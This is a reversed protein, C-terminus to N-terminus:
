KRTELKIKKQNKITRIEIPINNWIAPGFYQASETLITNIRPIQFKFQCM